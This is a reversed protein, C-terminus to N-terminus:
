QELKTNKYPNNINLNEIKVEPSIVAKVNKDGEVFAEQSSKFDLASMSILSALPNRGAM